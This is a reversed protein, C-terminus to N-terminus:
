HSVTPMPLNSRFWPWARGDKAVETAIDLSSIIGVLKNQDDVVLAHHYGHEEFVKAAEDRTTTDTVMELKRQMILAVQTDLHLAKQYALVLDTKTVIGVPTEDDKADLVIICSVNYATMAHVATSIPDVNHCTVVNERKTMFDRVLM